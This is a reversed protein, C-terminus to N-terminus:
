QKEKALEEAHKLQGGSIDTAVCNAGRSSLFISNQGIGCGVELCRLGEVNAPLLGITYDGPVLPGYHYDDTTINIAVKYNTAIM